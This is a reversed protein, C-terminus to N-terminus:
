IQTDRLRIALKSLIVPEHRAAPGRESVAHLAGMGDPSLGLM